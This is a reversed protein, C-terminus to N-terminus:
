SILLQIPFYVFNICNPLNAISSINISSSQVVNLSSSAIGEQLFRILQEVTEVSYKRNNAASNNGDNKRLDLEDNVIPTLWQIVDESYNLEFDAHIETKTSLKELSFVLINFHKGAVYLYDEFIATLNM